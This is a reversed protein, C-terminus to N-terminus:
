GFRPREMEFSGLEKKIRDPTSALKDMWEQGSGPRTLGKTKRLYEKAEAATKFGPSSHAQDSRPSSGTPMEDGQATQKSEYEAVIDRVVGYLGAEIATEIAQIQEPSRTENVFEAVARWKDVDYDLNLEKNITQRRKEVRYEQLEALESDSLGTSPAEQKPAQQKHSGKSIVKQAEAYAKELEDVSKYKGAYLREDAGGSIVGGTKEAQPEAAQEAQEGQPESNMPAQEESM